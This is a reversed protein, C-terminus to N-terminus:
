NLSFRGQQLRPPKDSSGQGPRGPVTLRQLCRLLFGFHLERCAQQEPASGAPPPTDQGPRWSPPSWSPAFGVLAKPKEVKVPVPCVRSYQFNLGHDAQLLFEETAPPSCLLHLVAWCTAGLCPRPPPDEGCSHGMGPQSLLGPHLARGQRPPTASAAAPQTEMRSSIETGAMWGM